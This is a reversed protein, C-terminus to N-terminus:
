RVAKIMRVAAQTIAAYDGAEIAKRDVLRGGIGLACAGANIFDAANNEDIGGVAVLPIKSLPAKVAKFYRPGLESAPFVKVFSAGSRYANYIETPTMAGPVSLMGLKLTEKIVAEDVVPSIIYRAGSDYAARVQGTTLVTGAGVFVRDGLSAAVNRISRCVSDMGKEDDQPFTMEIFRIGGAYLARATDLIRDPSVGRVIAIIKCDILEREM